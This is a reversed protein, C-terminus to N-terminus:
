NLDSNSIEATQRFHLLRLFYKDNGTRVSARLVRQLLRNKVEFDFAIKLKPTLFLFSKMIQLCSKLFLKEKTKEKM